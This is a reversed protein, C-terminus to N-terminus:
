LSHSSRSLSIKCRQQNEGSEEEAIILYEIICKCLNYISLPMTGQINEKSKEADRILEMLHNLESDTDHRFYSSETYKKLLYNFVEFTSNSRFENLSKEIGYIESGIGANGSKFTKITMAMGMGSKRKKYAADFQRIFNENILATLDELKHRNTERMSSPALNNLVSNITASFSESERAIAKEESHLMAMIYLKKCSDLFLGIYDQDHDAARIFNDHTVLLYEKSSEAGLINLDEINELDSSLGKFMQLLDIKDAESLELGEVLYANHIYRLIILKIPVPLFAKMWINVSELTITTISINAVYINDGENCKNLLNIVSLILKIDLPLSIIPISDKSFELSDMKNSFNAFITKYNIVSLKKTIKNEGQDILNMIITNQNRKIPNGKYQCFESLINFIMIKKSAQSCQNEIICLLRIMDRCLNESLLIKKNDHIFSKALILGEFTAQSSFILENLLPLEKLTMNQNEQNKFIAFSLFVLVESVFKHIKDYSKEKLNAQAFTHTIKILLEITGTGRVIDQKPKPVVLKTNEILLRDVTELGEPLLDNDEEAKYVRSTNIQKEISLM